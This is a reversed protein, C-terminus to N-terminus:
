VYMLSFTYICKTLPYFINFKEEQLVTSYAIHEKRCDGLQVFLVDILLDPDKTVTLMKIYITNYEIKELIRYFTFCTNPLFPMYGAM